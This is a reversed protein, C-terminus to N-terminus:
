RVDRKVGAQLRLLELVVRVHEGDRDHGMGVDVAPLTRVRRGAMRVRLGLSGHVLYTEGEKRKQGSSMIIGGDLVGSAVVM